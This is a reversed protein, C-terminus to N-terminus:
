YQSINKIKQYLQLTSKAPTVGLEDQMYKECKQYQRVAKDKQGLRMYCRMLRRHIDERCRDKKLITHCIKIAAGPKGNSSYYYSLKNLMLLFTEELNERELEIWPEYLFDELLDGTYLKVGLDYYQLALNLNKEQENKIALRFASRFEEVDSIFDIEPNVFYCDERFLIYETEEDVTQLAARIQHMTANLCNRASRPSSNPWFTEMLIDKYIPKHQNTIYSFLLKAKKGPWECVLQNNIHVCFSGILQVCLQKNKEPLPKPAYKSFSEDPVIKSQEDNQTKISNKSFLNKYSDNLGFMNHKITRNNFNIIKKEKTNDVQIIRDICSQIDKPDFPLYLVDNAGLRFARVVQERTPHESFYVLPTDSEKKLEAIFQLSDDKLISSSLLIINYKQSRLKKVVNEVRSCFEIHHEFGFNHIINSIHVDDRKSIALVNFGM